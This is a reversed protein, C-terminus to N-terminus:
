EGLPLQGIPERTGDERELEYTKRCAACKDYPAPCPEDYTCSWLFREGECKFLWGQYATRRGRADYTYDQRKEISGNRGWDTKISTVRGAGDREYRIRDPKNDGNDDRELQVLRGSDDCWCTAGKTCEPSNPCLKGPDCGCAVVSVLLWASARNSM